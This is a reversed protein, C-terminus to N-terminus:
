ANPKEAAVMAALYGTQFKADINVVAIVALNDDPRDKQAIGNDCAFTKAESDFEGDAINQSLQQGLEGSVGTVVAPQGDEKLQALIGVLIENTNGQQIQKPNTEFGAFVRSQFESLSIRGSRYHKASQQFQHQNIM